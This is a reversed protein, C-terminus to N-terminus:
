LLRRRLIITGIMGVAYGSLAGALLLVPFYYWVSAHHILVAAVALQAMNHAIGGIMSNASVDIFRIKKCIYMILLSCGAGALSFLCAFVNGFLLSTLVIRCLQYLICYGMGYTYLLLIVLANSLGIKIGPVSPVLVILTEVYSLIMGLCILLGMKAIKDTPM